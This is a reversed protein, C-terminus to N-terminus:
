IDVANHVLLNIGQWIFPAHPYAGASQASFEM